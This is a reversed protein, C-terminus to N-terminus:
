RSASGGARRAARLLLERMWAAYPEGSKRAARMIARKEDSRLRLMIVEGRIEGAPLRPRGMKKSM